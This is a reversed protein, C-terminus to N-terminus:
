QHQVQLSSQRTNVKSALIVRSSSSIRADRSKRLDRAVNVRKLWRDRGDYNATFSGRGHVVRFNDVICLDGPELILDHANDKLANALSDLVRKSTEAGELVHMDAPDIRVYPNEWAGFLVPRPSTFEENTKDFDGYPHFCFHSQFLAEKEDDDLELASISSIVTPVKSDNRLCFLLLQDARYPHFSEEVHLHLQQKSSSGAQIYENGQLPVIDNVMRGKQQEEWGIIDGLIAGYLATLLEERITHPNDPAYSAPTDGIKHDDIQHGKIVIAGYGLDQKFYNILHEKIRTPMQHMYYWLRDHLSPNEVSQFEQELQYLLSEVQFIEDTQLRLEDVTVQPNIQM